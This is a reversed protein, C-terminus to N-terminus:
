CCNLSKDGYKDTLQSLSFGLIPKLSKSCVARSYKIDDKKKKLLGTSLHQLAMVLAKYNTEKLVRSRPNSNRLWMIINSALPIDRQATISETM